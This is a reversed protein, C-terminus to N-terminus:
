NSASISEGYVGWFAPAAAGLNALLAAITAAAAGRQGCTLVANALQGGSHDYYRLKVYGHQEAERYTPSPLGGFGENTWEVTRCQDLNMWGVVVEAAEVSSSFALIIFLSGVFKRYM